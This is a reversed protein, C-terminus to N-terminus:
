TTFAKLGHTPKARSTTYANKVSPIPQQTRTRRSAHTDAQRHRADLWTCRAQEWTVARISTGLLARYSAKSQERYVRDLNPSAGDTLAM